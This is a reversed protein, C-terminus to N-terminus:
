RLYQTDSLDLQFGHKLWTTKRALAHDTLYKGRDAFDFIKCDIKGEDPRMARGVKQLTQIVSKGGDAIILADLGRFDFGEGIIGETSILTKLEKNKFRSLIDERDPNSGHVFEIPHSAHSAALNILEKGHEIRDVFVLTSRGELHMRNAIDVVKRNREQNYVIGMNYVDAWKDGRTTPIHRSPLFKIEPKILWGSAILPDSDIEHVIEGYAGVVKINEGDERMLPTASFGVRYYSDIMMSTEFSTKSAAHHVEDEILLGWGYKLHLHMLKMWEDRKKLLNALSHTTIITILSPEFKGGSITGIDNEDIDLTDLLEQRIQKMLVLKPVKILVTRKLKSILMAMMFTKGSATPSKIIGRGGASLVAELAETQYPRPERKLPWDADLEPPLERCNNIIIQEGLVRLLQIFISTCGSPIEVGGGVNQGIFRKGDWREARCWECRCGPSAGTHQRNEKRLREMWKTRRIPWNKMTFSAVDRAHDIMKPDDSHVTTWINRVTITTTM